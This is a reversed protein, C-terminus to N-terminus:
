LKLKNERVEKKENWELIMKKYDLRVEMFFNM